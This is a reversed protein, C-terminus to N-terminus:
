HHFPKCKPCTCHQFKDRRLFKCRSHEKSMHM